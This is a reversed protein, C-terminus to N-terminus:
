SPFAILNLTRDHVTGTAAGNWMYYQVNVIYTGAAVDNLYFVRTACAANAEGVANAGSLYVPNASGPPTADTSNVQTRIIIWDGTASMWAEASFLILLDSTRNLRITTRIATDNAWSSGTVSLLSSSYNSWMPIANAALKVNTVARDAIKATTIAGDAIKVTTVAGTALDEATITGDLIKATTVSGDAMKVTVIADNDIKSSTVAEDAIKASTVSGDALNVSVVAGDALKESTVTGDAIKSSTVAGNSIKVAVITGDDIDEGTITGDLIKASTVTGDALKTTIIADDAIKDTGITPIVSPTVLFVVALATILSLIWAIVIIPIAKQFSFKEVSM